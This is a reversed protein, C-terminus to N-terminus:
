YGGAQPYAAGLEAFSVAGLTWVVLILSRSGLQAAVTGPTRPIGVGITGGLIVAVGFTLGPIRLLPRRSSPM